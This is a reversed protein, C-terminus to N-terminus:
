ITCIACCGVVLASLKSPLYKIERDRTIRIMYGPTTDDIMRYFRMRQGQLYNNVM